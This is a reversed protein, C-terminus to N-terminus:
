ADNMMKRSLTKRKPNPKKDKTMGAGRAGDLMYIITIFGNGFCRVPTSYRLSYLTYLICYLTYLVTSYSVPIRGLGVVVVVVFPAAVCVCVCCVTPSFDRLMLM